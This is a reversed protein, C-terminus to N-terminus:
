KWVGTEIMNLRCVNDFGFLLIKQQLLKSKQLMVCFFITASMVNALGTEDPFLWTELWHNFYPKWILRTEDMWLLVDIVNREVNVNRVASRGPTPHPSTQPTEPLLCAWFLLRKKYSSRLPKLVKCCFYNEWAVVQWITSGFVGGLKRKLCVSLKKLEQLKRECFLKGAVSPTQLKAGGAWNRSRMMKKSAIKRSAVKFVVKRKLLFSKVGFVCLCRWSKLM